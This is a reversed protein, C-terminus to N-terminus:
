FAGGGAVQVTIHDGYRTVELKDGDPGIVAGFAGDDLRVGNVKVVHGAICLVDQAFRNQHIWLNTMHPPLHELSISGSFLNHHMFLYQLTDPLKSFDLSGEFCNRSADFTHLAPPLDELHISGSLKNGQVYLYTLARPLDGVVLSGFFKNFNIELLGLGRPLASTEVTGDLKMHSISFKKLKPPLFAFDIAGGEQIASLYGDDFIEAFQDFEWDIETVDGNENFELGPWTTIDTYSGDTDRFAESDELGAVLLELLTEQPLANRDIRSCPDAQLTLHLSLPLM